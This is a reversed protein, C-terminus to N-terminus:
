ASVKRFTHYKCCDIEPCSLILPIDFNFISLFSCHNYFNLFTVQIYKSKNWAPCIINMKLAPLSHLWTCPKYEYIKYGFGSVVKELNDDYSYHISIQCKTQCTANDTIISFTKNISAVHIEDNLKM